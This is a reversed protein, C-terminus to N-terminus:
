ASRRAPSVSPIVTRSTATPVPANALAAAVMTPGDPTTTTLDALSGIDTLMAIGGVIVGTWITTIYPTRYRQHIRAFYQPLLGDRAM